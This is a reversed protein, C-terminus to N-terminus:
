VAYEIETKGGLSITRRTGNAFIQLLRTAGREGTIVAQQVIGLQKTAEPCEGFIETVTYTRGVFTITENVKMENGRQTQTTTDDVTKNIRDAYVNPM